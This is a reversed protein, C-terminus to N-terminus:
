ESEETYGDEQEKRVSKTWRTMRALTEPGLIVIAADIIQSTKYGMAKLQKLATDAGDSVTISYQNAM